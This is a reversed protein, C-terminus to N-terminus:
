SGEPHRLRRRPSARLGHGGAEGGMTKLFDSQTGVAPPTKVFMALLDPLAAAAGPGIWGLGTMAQGANWIGEKRLQEEDRM